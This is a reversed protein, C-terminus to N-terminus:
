RRVGFKEDLERPTVTGRPDELEAAAFPPQCPRQRGSRLLPSPPHAPQIGTGRHELTRGLLAPRDFPDGPIHPCELPRASEVPDERRTGGEAMECIRIIKERCPFHRSAIQSRSPTKQDHFQHRVKRSQRIRHRRRGPNRHLEVALAVISAAVQDPATRCNIVRIRLRRIDVIEVIVELGALIRRSPAQRPIAAMDKKGVLEPKQKHRRTKHNLVNPAIESPPRETRSRPM